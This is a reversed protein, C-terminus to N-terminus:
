ILNELKFNLKNIMNVKSIIYIAINIDLMLTLFMFNDSTEKVWRAYIAIGM